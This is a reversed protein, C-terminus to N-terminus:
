DEKSWYLIFLNNFFVAFLFIFPSNLEFM